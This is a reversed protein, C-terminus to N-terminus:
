EAARARGARSFRQRWAKQEDITTCWLFLEGAEDTRAEVSFKHKAGISQLLRHRSIRSPLRSIRLEELRIGAKSLQYRSALYAVKARHAVEAIVPEVPDDELDVDDVGFLTPFVVPLALKNKWGIPWLNSSEKGEDIELLYGRRPHVMVRFGLGHQALIIALGTGKSFNKLEASAANASENMAKRQANESWTVQVEGPIEMAEVAAVASSLPTVEAPVKESLMGLVDAYQEESLGWTPRLRVPGGAGHEQLSNLFVKLPEIDSRRFTKENFRVDGKQDILGTVRVSHKENVIQPKENPKDQVITVRQGIREFARSWETRTNFRAAPNGGLLLRIDLRYRQHLTPTSRLRITERTEAVGTVSVVLCCAFLVVRCCFSSVSNM